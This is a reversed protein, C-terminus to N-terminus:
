TKNVVVLLYFWYVIWTPLLCLMVQQSSPGSSPPLLLSLSLSLSLSPSLSLPSLSPSLSLTLTSCCLHLIHHVHTCTYVGASMAQIMCCKSVPLSMGAQICPEAYALLHYWSMGAHIHLTCTCAHAHMFYVLLFHTHTHICM